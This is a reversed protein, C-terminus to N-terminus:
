GEFKCLDEFTPFPMDMNVSYSFGHWPYRNNQFAPYWKGGDSVGFSWDGASSSWCVVEVKKFGLVKFVKAYSGAGTNPLEVCKGNRVHAQAQQPTLPDGNNDYITGIGHPNEVIGTAVECTLQTNTKM